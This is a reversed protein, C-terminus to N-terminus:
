ENASRIEISNNIAHFDMNAVKFVHQSQMEAKLGEQTNYELLDSFVRSLARLRKTNEIMENKRPIDPVYVNVNATFMQVQGATSAPLGIVVDEVKSNVPRQDKYVKGSITGEPLIDALLRYLWDKIDIETTM